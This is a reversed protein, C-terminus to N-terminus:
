LKKIAVELEKAIKLNDNLRNTWGKSNYKWNKLQKLWNLRRHYIKDVTVTTDSNLHAISKYGCSKLGMHGSGWYAEAIMIRLPPNKISDIKLEDWFSKSIKEAEGWSLSSLGKKTPPKNVIKHASNIWYSITIGHNTLGSQDEKKDRNGIDGEWKRILSFWLKHHENEDSINKVFDNKIYAQAQNKTPKNISLIIFLVCLINIKKVM